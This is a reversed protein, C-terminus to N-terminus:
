RGCYNEDLACAKEFYKEAEEYNGIKEMVVGINYQVAGNKPKVKAAATLDKIALNYREYGAYILGRNFLAEFHQPRKELLTDYDELAKKYNSKKEFATARKYYAPLYDPRIEICRTFDSIAEEIDGSDFKLIGRNFYAVALYPDLRIAEDVDSLAKKLEGKNRYAISRRVYNAPNKPDLEMSINYYALAEDWEKRVAKLEGLANITPSYRNNMRLSEKLDREAMDLEGIRISARGRNTLAKYIEPDYPYQEIGMTYLVIADRYRKENLARTAEEWIKIGKRSYAPHSLLALLLFPLIYKLISAAPLRFLSCKIRNIPQM